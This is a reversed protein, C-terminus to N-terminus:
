RVCAPSTRQTIFAHTRGHAHNHTLTHTLSLSLFLLLSFACHPRSSAGDTALMVNDIVDAMKGEFEVYAALM